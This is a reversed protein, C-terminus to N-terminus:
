DIGEPLPAYGHDMFRWTLMIQQFHDLGQLLRPLVDKEEKPMVHMANRRAANRRVHNHHHAKAPTSM